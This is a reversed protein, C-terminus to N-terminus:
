TEVQGYQVEGHDFTGRLCSGIAQPSIAVSICSTIWSDLVVSLSALVVYSREREREREIETERERERERILACGEDVHPGPVFGEVVFAGDRRLMCPARPRVGGGVFAGDRRFQSRPRVEKGVM